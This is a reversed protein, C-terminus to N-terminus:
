RCRIKLDITMTTLLFMGIVDLDNDSFLSTRHEGIEQNLVARLDDLSEKTLTPTEDAVTKEPSRM